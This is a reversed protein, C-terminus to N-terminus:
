RMSRSVIPSTRTGAAARYRACVWRATSFKGIEPRPSSGVCTAASARILAAAAYTLAASPTIGAVTASAISAAASSITRPPCASWNGTSTNWVPEPVEDLMFM